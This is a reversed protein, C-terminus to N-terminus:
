MVLRQVNGVPGTIIVHEGRTLWTLTTLDRIRTAPIGPDANLNFTELTASPTTFHAQTVLRKHKGQERRDIEDLCLTQLFDLFGLEGATAQALRTDLTTLMGSLSLTKLSEALQPTTTPNM